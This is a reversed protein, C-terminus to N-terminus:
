KGEDEVLSDEGCFRQENRRLMENDYSDGFRCKLIEHKEAILRAVRCSHCYKQICESCSKQSREKM